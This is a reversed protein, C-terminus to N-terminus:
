STVIEVDAGFNYLNPCEYAFELAARRLHDALRDQEARTLARNGSVTVEVMSRRSEPKTTM